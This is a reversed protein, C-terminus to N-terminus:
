DRTRWGIHKSIEIYHLNERYNADDIKAKAPGMLTGITIVLWETRDPLAHLSDRVTQWTVPRPDGNHFQVRLDKHEFQLEVEDKAFVVTATEPASSFGESDRVLALLVGALELESLSTVGKNLLVAEPSAPLTVTEVTFDREFHSDDSFV